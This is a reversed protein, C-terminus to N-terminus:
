DAAPEPHDEARRADRDDGLRGVATLGNGGHELVPGVDHQHIDPHRLHVPQFGGAPDQGGRGSAVAPDDDEGREVKVLVHVGREARAGAPEQELVDGRLLEDGRHPHHPGTVGQERWRDGAPEDLPERRTRGGARGHVGVQGLQGRALKLHKPQEGPAQAVGFEGGFQGEALRRDLGMDAPYQGLELETVPDLRDHQGVLGAQGARPGSRIGTVV